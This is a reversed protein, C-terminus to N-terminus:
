FIRRRSVMTIHIPAIPVIVIPVIPAKRTSTRPRGPSSLAFDSFRVMQVLVRRLLARPVQPRRVTLRIPEGPSRRLPWSRLRAGSHYRRLSNTPPTVSKTRLTVKPFEFLEPLKESLLNLQCPLSLFASSIPTIYESLSKARPPPPPEPNKSPNFKSGYKVTATGRPAYTMLLSPLYRLENLRRNCISGYRLSAVCSVKGFYSLSLRGLRGSNM